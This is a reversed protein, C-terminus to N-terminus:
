YNYGECKSYDNKFDTKKTKFKPDILKAAIAAM